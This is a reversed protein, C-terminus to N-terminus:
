NRAGISGGAPECCQDGSFDYPPKGPDRAARVNSGDHDHDWLRHDAGACLRRARDKIVADAQMLPRLTPHFDLRYVSGNWLGSLSLPRKTKPPISKVPRPRPNLSPTGRSDTQDRLSVAAPARPADGDQAGNKNSAAGKKKDSTSASQFIVSLDGFGPQM